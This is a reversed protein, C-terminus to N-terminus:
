ELMRGTMFTILPRFDEETCDFCGGMAPMAQFGDMANNLMAEMGKGSREQWDSLKGSQPAGTGEMGHCVACNTDYIDQRRADLTVVQTKPMVSKSTGAGDDSGGCAVVLLVPLGLTFAKVLKKIKM